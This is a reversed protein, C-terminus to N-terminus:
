IDVTSGIEKATRERASVPDGKRTRREEFRFSPFRPETEYGSPARCLITGIRRDNIERISDRTGRSSQFLHTSSEGAYNKGGNKEKGRETAKRIDIVRIIRAAVNRANGPSTDVTEQSYKMSTSIALSGVLFRSTLAFLVPSLSPAGSPACSPFPHPLSPLLTARDTPPEM